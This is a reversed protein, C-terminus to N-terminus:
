IYPQPAAPPASKGGFGVTVSIPQQSYDTSAGPNYGGGDCAKCEQSHYPNIYGKWIQNISWKFDLLVRKLIRGM